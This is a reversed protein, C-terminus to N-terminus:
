AKSGIIIYATPPRWTGANTLGHTHGGGGGKNGTFNASPTGSTNNSPTDSVGTVGETSGSFAVKSIGGAGSGSQVTTALYKIVFTGPGHTHSSLSHTHNQLDHWHAPIDAELLTYSNVTYGGITWSNAITTGGAQGTKWGLVHDTPAAVLNWGGPITAQYFLLKTGVDFAAAAIDAAHQGDLLDANFAVQIVDADCIPIAQEGGAAAVHFGDVLDANLNTQVVGNKDPLSNITSILQNFEDDVQSSQITTGAQFDFLRIINPM